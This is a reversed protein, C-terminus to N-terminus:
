RRSSVLLRRVTQSDSSKFVDRVGTTLAAQVSDQRSPTPGLSGAGEQPLGADALTELRNEEPVGGRPTGGSGGFSRTKVMVRDTPKTGRVLPPMRPHSETGRASSPVNMLVRPVWPSANRLPTRQPTRRRDQGARDQASRPRSGARGPLPRPQMVPKSGSARTRM